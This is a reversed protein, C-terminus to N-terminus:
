EEDEIAAFAAAALELRYEYELEFLRILQYDKKDIEIREEEKENAM